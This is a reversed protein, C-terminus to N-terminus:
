VLKKCGYVMRRRPHYRSVRVSAAEPKKVERSGSLEVGGQGEVRCDEAVWWGSSWALKAGERSTGGRRRNSRGALTVDWCHSNNLQVKRELKCCGWRSNNLVGPGSRDVVKNDRMYPPNSSAKLGAKSAVNPRIEKDKKVCGRRSLLKWFCKSKLYLSRSQCSRKCQELSCAACCLLSHLTSKKNLAICPLLRVWFQTRQTQALRTRLQKECYRSLVALRSQSSDLLCLM